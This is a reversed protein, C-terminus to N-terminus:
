PLIIRANVFSTNGDQINWIVTCATVNGISWGPQIPIKFKRRFSYGASISGNAVQYGLGGVAGSSRLVYPHVFGPNPIGAQPQPVNKEVLLINAFYQGQGPEHFIGNLEVELSDESITFFRGDASAVAEEQREINWADRIAQESFLNRQNGLSFGPLLNTQMASQLSVAAGTFLPDGAQPYVMIPFWQTGFETSLTNFIPFAFSGSTTNSTQSFFLFLPTRGREPYRCSGDDEIAEPQFRLSNPDTCGKEGKGCGQGILISLMLMWYM